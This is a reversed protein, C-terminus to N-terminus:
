IKAETAVTYLLDYRTIIGFGGGPQKVLVAPVERSVTGAVQDLPSRADAARRATDAIEDWTTAPGAPAFTAGAAEFPSRHLERWLVRGDLLELAAARLAQALTAFPVVDGTTGVTAIAVKLPPM